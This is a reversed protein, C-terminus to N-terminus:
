NIENYPYSFKAQRSTHQMLHMSTNLTWFLTDSVRVSFNCITTLERMTSPVSALEDALATFTRVWQPM